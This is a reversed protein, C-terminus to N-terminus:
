SGAISSIRARIQDVLQSPIRQRCLKETLFKKFSKEIEYKKLCPSCQHLHILFAKEEAETLEGDLAMMVRTLTAKCDYM